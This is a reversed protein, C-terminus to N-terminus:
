EQDEEPDKTQQAIDRMEHIFQLMSTNAFRGRVDPNAHLYRSLADGLLILESGEGKMTLVHEGLDPGTYYHCGIVCAFCRSELEDMLDPISALNIEM